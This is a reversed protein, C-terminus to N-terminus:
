NEGIGPPAHVPARVPAVEEAARRPRNNEAMVAVNLVSYAVSVAMLLAGAITGVTFLLVRARRNQLAIKKQQRFAVGSEAARPSLIEYAQIPIDIGKLELRGLDAVPLKTASKDILSFFAESMCVAGPAAHGELRAAINVGSGLVDKGRRYIEGMHLGIRFELRKEPPYKRNAQALKRQIEISCALAAGASGFSAVVSDGATNAIAGGRQVILGDIWTRARELMALTREENESMLRSYGAVDAAFIITLQKKEVAPRRASLAM